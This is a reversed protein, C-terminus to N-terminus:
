CNSFPNNEMEQCIGVKQDLNIGSSTFSHKKFNLIQLLTVKYKQCIRLKGDLVVNFIM